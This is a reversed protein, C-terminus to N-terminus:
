VQIWEEFLTQISYRDNANGAGTVTDISMGTDGERVDFPFPQPATATSSVTLTGNDNVVVYGDRSHPGAHIFITGEESATLTLTPSDYVVANGATAFGTPLSTYPQIVRIRITRTAVDVSANYYLVIGYFRRFANTTGPTITTETGGAVDAAGTVTLFGEGGGPGPEVYEGLSLAHSDYVYGKAVVNGTLRDGITVDVYTQGRKTATVSATAQLGVVWGNHSLRNGSERVETVRDSTTVVPGIQVQDDSGDDYRVRVSVTLTTAVSSASRVLLREDRYVRFPSPPM